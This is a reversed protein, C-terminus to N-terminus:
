FPLDSLDSNPDDSEKPKEKLGVETNNNIEKVINEITEEVKYYSSRAIAHLKQLIDYNLEDPADLELPLNSYAWFEYIKDGSINYLRFIIIYAEEKFDWNKSITIAGSKLTLKFEDELIIQWIVERKESKLLLMKVLELYNTPKM